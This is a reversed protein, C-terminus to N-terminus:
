VFSALSLSPFILLDPLSAFSQSLHLLQQGINSLSLPHSLIGESSTTISDNISDCFSGFRLNDQLGRSPTQDYTSHQAVWSGGEPGMTENGLSLQLSVTGLHRLQPCGGQGLDHGKRPCSAVIVSQGPPIFVCDKFVLLSLM